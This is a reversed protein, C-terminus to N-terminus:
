LETQVIKMVLQTSMEQRLWKRRIKGMNAKEKSLDTGVDAPEIDASDIPDLGNMSTDFGVFKFGLGNLYETLSKEPEFTPGDLLVGVHLSDIEFVVEEDNRLTYGTVNRCKEVALRCKYELEVERDSLQTESM